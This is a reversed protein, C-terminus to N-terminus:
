VEFITPLHERYILGEVYDIDLKELLRSIADETGRLNIIRRKYILMSGEIREDSLALYIEMSAKDDIWDIM